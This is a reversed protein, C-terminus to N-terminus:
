LKLTPNSDAQVGQNSVAGNGLDCRARERANMAFFQQRFPTLMLAEPDHEPGLYTRWHFWALAREVM